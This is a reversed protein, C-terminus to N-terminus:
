RQVPHGLLKRVTYSLMSDALEKAGQLGKTQGAGKLQRYPIRVERGGPGPPHVFGVEELTARGQPDVRFVLQANEHLGDGAERYHILRVLYHDGVKEADIATPVIGEHRWLRRMGDRVKTIGLKRLLAVLKRGHPDPSSSSLLVEGDDYGGTSSTMEQTRQAHRGQVSPAEEPTVWFTQSFTKGGRHVVKRVPVLHSHTGKGGKPSTAQAAKILKRYFQLLDAM